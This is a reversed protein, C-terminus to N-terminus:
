VGAARAESEGAIHNFTYAVIDPLSKNIKVCLVTPKGTDVLM